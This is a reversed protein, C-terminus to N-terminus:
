DQEYESQIADLWDREPIDVRVKLVGEKEGRTIALIQHPLLRDVRSTFDYYSEYVRKEDVADEIKKAYVTSFKLAKERLTSRVNANDSITEAVIDRAGQLAEEISTVQDNVFKAALKELSGSGQKLILDALPELGKERAVMARTRRKKKYPAYLDELATLTAAAEIAVRLEDTLKGQEEISALIAARREDLGRLRTLEDAIIRIQEDDLSGTMEKRYRAIFPVTNGDDLLKIVAEVQSPKVQLLTAIIESHSM